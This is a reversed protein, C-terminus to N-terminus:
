SELRVGKRKKQEAHREECRRKNIAVPKKGKDTVTFRDVYGVVSYSPTAKFLDTEDKKGRKGWRKQKKTGV